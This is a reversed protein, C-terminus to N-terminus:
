QKSRRWPDRCTGTGNVALARRVAAEHGAQRIASRLYHLGNSLTFGCCFSTLALLWPTGTVIGFVMCAVSATVAAAMAIHWGIM